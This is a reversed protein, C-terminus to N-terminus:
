LEKHLKRKRHYRNRAIRKIYNDDKVDKLLVYEMSGCTTCYTKKFDSQEWDCLASTENVNVRLCADAETLTFVWLPSSLLIVFWSM